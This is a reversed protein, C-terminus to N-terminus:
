RNEYPFGGKEERCGVQVVVQGAPVPKDHERHGLVRRMVNEGKKCAFAVGFGASATAGARDNVEDGEVGLVPFVSEIGILVSRALSSTCLGVHM